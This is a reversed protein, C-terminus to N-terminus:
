KRGHRANVMDDQENEARREDQQRQRSAQRAQHKELVQVQRRAELVLQRATQEAAEAEAVRTAESRVTAEAQARREGLRAQYRREDVWQGGRFGQALQQRELRVRADVAERAAALMDRARAHEEERRAREARAVSLGSEAEDLARQRLTMLTEIENGM